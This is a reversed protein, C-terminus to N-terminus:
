AFESVDADAFENTQGLAVVKRLAAARLRYVHRPSQRLTRAIVQPPDGAVYWRFLVERDVEELWSLRAHLEQRVDFEDLLARNIAPGTGDPRGSGVGLTSGSRIQLHDTYRWLAREVEGVSALM